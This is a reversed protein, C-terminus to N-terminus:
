IVEPILCPKYEFSSVSPIMQGAILTEPSSIIIPLVSEKDLPSLLIDLFTFLSM